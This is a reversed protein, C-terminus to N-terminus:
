LWRRVKKKYAAFEAGFKSALIREEPIIQFRNIYLVFLPAVLLAAVSSLFAAWALLVLLMGLYMPNRTFRYVGSSVLSSTSAPKLPNITTRARVFYFLGALDFGLGAAALTLAAGMRWLAPLELPAVVVSTLWM